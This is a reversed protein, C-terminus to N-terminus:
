ATDRVDDCPNPTIGCPVRQALFEERHFEQGILEVPDCEGDAGSAGDKGVVPKPYKLGAPAPDPTKFKLPYKENVHYGGSATLTVEALCTDGKKCPGSLAIQASYETQTVTASSASRSETTGASAAAEAVQCRGRMLLGFAAAIGVM